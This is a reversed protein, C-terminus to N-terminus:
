FLPPLATARGLSALLSKKPLAEKTKGRSIENKHGM